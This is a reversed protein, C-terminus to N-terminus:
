YKKAEAPPPSRKKLEDEIARWLVAFLMSQIGNALIKTKLGRFFLGSVGDQAIVQRIANPYTIAEASAQKVVKTVRISNSITDSILSSCFGMTASRLLKQVFTDAKPLHENLLNYTFFWPYHGAFTAVSSAIAGYYLVRVGGVSIKHRLQAVGKAGEV